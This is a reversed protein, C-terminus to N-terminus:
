TTLAQLEDKKEDLRKGLRKLREELKKSQEEYIERSIAGSEHRQAVHDRLQTVSKVEKELASIDGKLDAVINEEETKFQKAPIILGLQDQTKEAFSQFQERLRAINTDTSDIKEELGKIDKQLDFVANVLRRMTKELEGRVVETTGSDERRETSVSRKEKKKMLREDGCLWRFANLAFTRNGDGKMGGGRRFVEYSGVCVVRGKGKEAVAIVPQAPPDATASTIGVAKAKGSTKLTCASPLLLSDVGETIPHGEFDAIIPMTPLGANMREDKVATNEFTIGFDESLRSMNNMLGKDGGSLALLMLGGGGEVYAKLAGIENARLKSSNPCGFVIADANEIKNKLIMFETYAEVDYDNDELLQALESYTSDIKGRENQTQDFFVQKRRSM